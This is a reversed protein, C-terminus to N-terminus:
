KALEQRTRLARDLEAMIGKFNKAPIEEVTAVDQWKLLASIDDGLEDVMDLIRSKQDDTIMLEVKGGAANGDDDDGVAINFVKTLLYRTGYSFSSGMAHTQTKNASGKIGVDDVPVDNFYEKMYGGRHMMDCCVRFCKEKKTIGEHFAPAFGHKTYVPKIARIIADLKAYKSKTQDNKATALVSGMEAQAAVMDAFFSEKATRDLVREQMDMISRMKDVDVAPNAALREIAKLFSDQEPQVAPVSAPQRNKFRELQTTKEIVETETM